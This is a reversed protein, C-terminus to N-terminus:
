KKSDFLTTKIFMFCKFCSVFVLLIVNLQAQQAQQIPPQTQPPWQAQQAQQMPQAQQTLNNITARTLMKSDIYAVIEAKGHYSAYYRTDWDPHNDSTEELSVGMEEHWYQVCDLCGAAASFLLGYKPTAHSVNKAQHRLPDLCPKFQFPPPPPLASGIDYSSLRAM